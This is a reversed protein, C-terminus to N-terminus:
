YIWDRNMRSSHRGISTTWTIDQSHKLWLNSTNFAEWFLLKFEVTSMDFKICSAFFEGVQCSMIESLAQLINRNLFLSAVTWESQIKFNSRISLLYLALGAQSHHSVSKSRASLSKSFPFNWIRLNQRSQISKLIKRGYNRRDSPSWM